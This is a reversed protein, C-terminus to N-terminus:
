AEGRGNLYAALTFEPPENQGRPFDNPIIVGVIEKQIWSPLPLGELMVKDDM